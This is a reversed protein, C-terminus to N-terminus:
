GNNVEIKIPNDKHAEAITLRKFLEDARQEFHKVRNLRVAGYHTRWADTAKRLNHLIHVADVALQMLEEESRIIIKM